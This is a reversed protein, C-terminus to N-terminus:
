ADDVGAARLARRGRLSILLETFEPTPEGLVERLVNVAYQCGVFVMEAAQRNKANPSAHTLIFKQREVDHEFLALLDRIEAETKM